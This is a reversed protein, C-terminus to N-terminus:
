KVRRFKTGYILEVEVKLEDSGVEPSFGVVNESYPIILLNKPFESTKIIKENIFEYKSKIIKKGMSKELPFYDVLITGDDSFTIFCASPNDRYGDVDEFSEWNGVIYKKYDNVEYNRTKSLKCSDAQFFIFCCFLMIFKCM